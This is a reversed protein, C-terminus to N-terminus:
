CMAFLYCSDLAATGISLAPGRRGGALAKQVMLNYAGASAVLLEFWPSRIPRGSLYALVPIAVISLWRLRVALQEAAERFRARAETYTRDTGNRESRVMPAETVYAAV